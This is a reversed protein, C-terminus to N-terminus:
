FKNILMVCKKSVFEDLNEMIPSKTGKFSIM